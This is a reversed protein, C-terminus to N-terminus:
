PLEGTQNSTEIPSASCVGARDAPLYRSLEGSRSRRGSSSPGAKRHIQDLEVIPLRPSPTNSAAPGSSTADIVGSGNATAIANKAWRM